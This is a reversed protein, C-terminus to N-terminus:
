SDQVPGHREGQMVPFRFGVVTIDDRQPREGRYANLATEFAEAQGTLPIAALDLILTRFREEGFCLGKEGGGEDLVGDSILYFTRADADRVVHEVYRHWAFAGRYGLRRKDGRIAALERGALAYLTLGAGAFRLIGSSRDFVCLAMDLGCDVAGRGGEQLNFAQRLARDIENLIVDPSDPGHADLVHGILAHVTMTMFAGPVGHGTCDLLAFVTRGPYQRLYYLDGGVIDRPRYLVMHGAFARALREPGPLISRQITRAYYLSELTNQRARNLNENAESLEATRERVRNELHRTNDLVTAAMVNFSHTLQGIEDGRDVPLAVAYNGRVIEGSAATLQALPRIVLRTILAGITLTVLLLSVAILVSMPRFLQEGVVSSVDVLVLNFWGLGKLGCVAAMVSKDGLTLPFSEVESQSRSLHLLAEELRKSGESDNLLSSVAIKKEPNRETANHEVIRKDAHAQIVGAQDVIMGSMGDRGTKVVRDVFGSIDIGGGGLGIKNGASDRIIVNFWIKTTNVVRDYDLNLAFNDVTAMTQFYWHDKPNDPSLVATKLSDGDQPGTHNYYRRSADVTVFYSKDRFMRRYNELQGFAAARGQPDAEELIWRIVAPDGALTKALSVEREVVAAIDNRELLAQRAALNAAFGNVIGKATWAFVILSGLAALLYVVAVAFHFKGRLSLQMGPSAM